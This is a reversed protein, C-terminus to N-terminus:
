ALGTKPAAISTDYVEWQKGNWIYSGSKLPKTEAASHVRIMALLVEKKEAQSIEKNELILSNQTTAVQHITTIPTKEFSNALTSQSVQSYASVTILFLVTFLILQLRQM